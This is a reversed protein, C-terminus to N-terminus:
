LVQPKKRLKFKKISVILIRKWIKNLQRHERKIEQAKEKKREKKKPLPYGAVEFRCKEYLKNQEQLQTINNGKEPDGKAWAPRLCSPKLLGGAESGGL